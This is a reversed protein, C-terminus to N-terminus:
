KPGKCISKKLADFENKLEDYMGQMESIRAFASKRVRNLSLKMKKIESEMKSTEESKFFDLQYDLQYDEDFECEYKKLPEIM